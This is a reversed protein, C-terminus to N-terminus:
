SGARPAAALRLDRALLDMLMGDHFSGDAGREYERMLGVPEFGVKQYCRIARANSAAPDITLRHHGREGVLFSALLRVAQEGIGRGSVRDSLFIDIGAHRYDPANEEHYEIAGAVQGDVELVLRYPGEDDTLRAQIEEAPEPDGWWLRVEPEALIQGLPNVDSVRGPRILM